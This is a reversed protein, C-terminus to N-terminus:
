KPPSLPLARLAIHSTCSQSKGLNLKMYLKKKKKAKSEERQENLEEAKLENSSRTSAPLINKLVPM